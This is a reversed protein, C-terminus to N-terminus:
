RSGSECGAKVDVDLSKDIVSVERPQGNLEFFVTRTGDPYAQGTALYKVILRKGQEIDVAIEDGPEQGYFFNPTPLVSVDGYLGRHRAFDEFVNEYLLYTVADQDNEPEGTLESAKVRAAEIDAPPM